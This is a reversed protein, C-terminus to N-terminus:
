VGSIIVYKQNLYYAPRYIQQQNKINILQDIIILKWLQKAQKSFIQTNNTNVWLYLALYVFSIFM